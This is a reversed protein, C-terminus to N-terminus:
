CLMCFRGRLTIEFVFVTRNRSFAICLQHHRHYAINVLRSIIPLIRPMPAAYSVELMGERWADKNCSALPTIRTSTLSM